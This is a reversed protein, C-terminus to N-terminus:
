LDRGQEGSSPRMKGGETGAACSWWTGTAQVGAVALSVNKVPSPHEGGKGETGFGVQSMCPTLLDSTVLVGTEAPATPM